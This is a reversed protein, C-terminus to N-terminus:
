AIELILLINELPIIELKKLYVIEEDNNSIKFKMVKSRQFNM